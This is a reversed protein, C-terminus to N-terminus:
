PLRMREWLWLPIRRWFFVLWAYRWDIIAVRRHRNLARVIHAAVREPKMLMPYHKTSNLLATAVFGPRIDTFHINLQQSHALQALAELYTNQFRKTASYSPASGLGKTGAVSSIIALHGGGHERFYHFAATVMRTFGLANTEVTRLETEPQLEPNEWGVGSSLLFLNMGGTQAILWQLREPADDRMIDLVQLSVREPFSTQLTMLEEERRGAVGVRWGAELLKKAVERGIGSTAGIIIARKM